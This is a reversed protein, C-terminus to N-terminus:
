QQNVIGVILAQSKPKGTRAVEGGMVALKDTYEDLANGSLDSVKQFEIQAANLKYVQDVMSTVVDITRRFIENAAQFTLSNDQTAQDLERMGKSANDAQKTIEKVNETGTVDIKINIPKIEKALKDLKAQVGKASFDVDVLISYNSKKIAM